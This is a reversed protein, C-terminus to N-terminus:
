AAVENDVHCIFGAAIPIYTPEAGAATIKLRATFSNSVEPVITYALAGSRYIEAKRFLGYHIEANRAYVFLRYPLTPASNGTATYAQTWTTAADNATVGQITIGDKNQTIVMTNTVDLDVRDVSINTNSWGGWYLQLKNSNPLFNVGQRTSPSEGCANFVSSMAGVGCRCTVVLEDNFNATIGTDIFLSTPSPKPKEIWCEKWVESGGSISAIEDPMEGITMLAAKGTKARIADAVAGVQATDFLAVTM